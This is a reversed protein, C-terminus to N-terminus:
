RRAEHWYRPRRDREGSAGIGDRALRVTVAGDRDTRLLRIGSASFRNLVEPAPHGFRNRYGVPVVAVAPRVAALLGASSSTRSGHHPVLLVDSQVAAPDRKVLANEAPREIDSTLLMSRG